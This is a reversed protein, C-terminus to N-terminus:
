EHECVQSGCGTVNIPLLPMLGTIGFGVPTRAGVVVSSVFNMVALGLANQVTTSALDSATVGFLSVNGTVYSSGDAIFQAAFLSVCVTLTRVSSFLRYRMILRYGSVFVSEM